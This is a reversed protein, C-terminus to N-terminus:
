RPLFRSFQGTTIKEAEIRSLRTLTRQYIRQRGNEFDYYLVPVRGAAMTTAIQIMFCSKGVKPGGGLINIGHIGGVREDLLSFGSKMDHYSSEALAKVSSFFLAHEQEPTAFPSFPRSSTVMRGFKQGFKEGSQVALAYASFDKEDAGQWQLIRVKFGIRTASARAAAYSDHNNRPVICVTRIPAFLEPDLHELIRKEWFGVGPFGLQKIALLNEEGECLFLAGGGCKQIEGINFLGTEGEGFETDGYWFYDDPKEPHVCRASYTNGDIQTYPYVIYRGNFGVGMQKLTSKRIGAATFCALSEADLKGAYNDIDLNINREPFRAQQWYIEEDPLPPLEEGTSGTLTAFWHAYGSEMCGSTCRFYGFFFSTPNLFVQMKGHRPLGKKRCLPCEATLVSDKLDGDPLRKQYFASIVKKSM